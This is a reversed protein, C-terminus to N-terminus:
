LTAPHVLGLGLFMLALPSGEEEEEAGFPLQGAHLVCAQWSPAGLEVQDQGVQCSQPLQAEKTLEKEEEGKEVMMMMVVLVVVVVVWAESNLVKAQKWTVDGSGGPGM